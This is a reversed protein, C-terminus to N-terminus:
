HVSPVAGTYEFSLTFEDTPLIATLENTTIHRLEDTLNPTILNCTYHFLEQQTWKRHLFSQIGQKCYILEGDYLPAVMFRVRTMDHYDVAYLLFDIGDYAYVGILPVREDYDFLHKRTSQRYNFACIM